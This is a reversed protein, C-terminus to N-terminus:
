GMQNSPRWFAEEATLIRYSMRTGKTATPVARAAILAPGSM